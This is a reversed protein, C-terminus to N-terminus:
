AVRDPWSWQGPLTGFSAPAPEFDRFGAACVRLLVQGDALVKLVMAPLVEGAVTHFEVIRGPTVKM